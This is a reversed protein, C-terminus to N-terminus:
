RVTAAEAADLIARALAGAHVDAAPDSLVLALARAAPAAGEAVIAHPGSADIGHRAALALARARIAPDRVPTPEHCTACRTPDVAFAHHTGDGADDHCGLCGGEIAAHPATGAVGLGRGLVLAAAAGSADDGRPAHCELCVSTPADAWAVVPDGLSAPWTTHRVLRGVSGAQHPAHCAACSVGLGAALALGPRAARAGVDALFGATTHCRACTGARTRPDDDARAMRSAALETPHTYAPPADHCTACVESRLIAWSADPEPIAGPGHCATCGVGAVRRLGRPVGAVQTADLHWPDIELERAVHAFGEDPLGPEGTTHCAFACGADRGGLDHEFAHTMASAQAAATEAAHCEARGCDLPTSAHGGVRLVLEAGTPDALVYEGPLAPEIWDLSAPAGAIRAIDGRALAAAARPPQSVISFPGGALLVRAGLPVSPLGTARSAGAVLVRLEVDAHGHGHWTARLLHAERTRPSIAVVGRAPPRALELASFRLRAGFGNRSLSLTAAPGAGPEERWTIRGALAERCGPEVALTLDAGFGAQPQDEPGRLFPVLDLAVDADLPVALTCAADHEIAIGGGAGPVVDLALVRASAEARVVRAAGTWRAERLDVGVPARVLVHVVRPESGCAAALALAAILGRSVDGGRM